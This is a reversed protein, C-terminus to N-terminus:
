VPLPQTARILRDRIAAWQPVDPPIEIFIAKLNM